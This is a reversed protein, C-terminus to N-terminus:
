GRGVGIWDSTAVQTAMQLLIGTDAGCRTHRPRGAVAGRPPACRYLPQVGSAPWASRGSQCLGVACPEGRPLPAFRPPVLLRRLRFWCCRAASSSSWSKQAQGFIVCKGTLIIVFHWFLVRFRPLSCFWVLVVILMGGGGGSNFPTTEWIRGRRRNVLPVTARQRRRRWKIRLTFIVRRTPRVAGATGGKPARRSSYMANQAFSFRLCALALAPVQEM